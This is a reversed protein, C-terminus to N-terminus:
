FTLYSIGQPFPSSTSPTLPQWPTHVSPGSCTLSPVREGLQVRKGPLSFWTVVQTEAVVGLAEAAEGTVAAKVGWSSLGLVSALSLSCKPM